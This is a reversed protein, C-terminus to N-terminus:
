TVASARRQLRLIYIQCASGVYKEKCLLLDQRGASLGAADRGRWRALCRVEFFRLVFAGSKIGEAAM